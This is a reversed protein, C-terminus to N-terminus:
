TMVSWTGQRHLRPSRRRHGTARSAVAGATPADHDGGLWRSLMAQLRATIEARVESDAAIGALASELQRLETLVPTGASESPCIETRLYGAVAESTPHDFVLTTPLQIGTATTLRNRLDIATLSDFGLESFARNAEVAEPTHHGLVAAAEARVLATLMRDQEAPSLGALKRELETGAVSAPLTEAALADRVEPLAEILPSRRQLTFPPAFRAWDVDAVTTLTEGGDVVAALAQM